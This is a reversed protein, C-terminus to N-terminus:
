KEEVEKKKRRKKLILLLLILLLVLLILGGIAFYVWTPVKEPRPDNIAQSNGKKAEDTLVTFDKNWEWTKSSWKPDYTTAKIRNLNFCNTLM